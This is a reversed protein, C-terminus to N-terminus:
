NEERVFGKNLLSAVLWGGGAISAAVFFYTRPAIDVIGLFWPDAERSLNWIVHIVIAPILSRYKETLSATLWGFLFHLLNLEGHASAFCLASITKAAPANYPLRMRGRPSARVNAARLRVNGVM